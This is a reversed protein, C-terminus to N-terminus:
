KVVGGGGWGLFVGRLNSNSKCGNCHVWRPTTVVGSEFASPRRERGHDRSEAKPGRSSKDCGFGDNRKTVVSQKVVVVLFATFAHFRVVWKVAM